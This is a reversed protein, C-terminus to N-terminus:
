VYIYLIDIYVYIHIQIYHFLISMHGLSFRSRAVGRDYNNIYFCM